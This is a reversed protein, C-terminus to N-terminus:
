KEEPSNNVFTKIDKYLIKLKLDFKVANRITKNDVELKVAMKRMSKTPDKLIQSRLVKIFRKTRKKNSGGSGSKRKITKCRNMRKKVNYVTKLSVGVIRSIVQMLLDSIRQCKSEQNSM